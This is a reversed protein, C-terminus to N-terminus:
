ATRAHRVHADHGLLTERYVALIIAAATENAFRGIMERGNSRRPSELIDVLADALSGANPECVYSPRVGDLQERVDGVDVSVVPLDCAMAEKVVTPSGESYSTLVLADAANMFLAVDDQTRGYVSILQVPQGELCVREVADQALAFRKVRLGPDGVFIVIRADADIGLQMRAQVRPIRDFRDVDIGMPAVTAHPAGLTDRIRSSVAVAHAIRRALLQSLRREIRGFIRRYLGAYPRGLVDTGHFTVIVPVSRQTAGVIGTFGYHAHVLDYQERAMCAVMKRRMRIYPWIGGGGVDQVVDCQVGLGELASVQDRVWTGSHPSADSPWRRTMVLVRIRESQCDRSRVGQHMLPKCM